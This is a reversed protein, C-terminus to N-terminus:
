MLAHRCPSRFSGSFSLYIVLQRQVTFSTIRVTQRRSLLGGAACESKFGGITMAWLGQCCRACIQQVEADRAHDRAPGVDKTASLSSEPSGALSSQVPSGQPRCTQRQDGGPTSPARGSALCCHWSPSSRRLPGPPTPLQRSDDVSARAGVGTVPRNCRLHVSVQELPHRPPKVYERPAVPVAANRRVDAQPELARPRQPEHMSDSVNPDTIARTKSAGEPDKMATYASGHQRM